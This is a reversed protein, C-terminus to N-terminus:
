RGTVLGRAYDAANAPDVRGQEVDAMYGLPRALVGFPLGTLVGITTLSDKIARKWSGDNVVANYVSVPTRAATEIVAVGPSSMVRDDYRKDNWANIAAMAGQGVIPVMATFLKAQGGFFVSLFNDLYGDDDDDDWLEGSMAQAIAEAIVATPLVIFFYLHLAQKWSKNAYADGAEFGLLNSQNIFYSTFMTFLRKIASGTEFRSLSEPNFDGQTLRVAADARRVSEEVSLNAEQAQNYAGRWIIVDMFNQTTQQLVYGYRASYERAKRYLSPDLMFPSAARVAEATQLPASIYTYFSNRLHEGKVKTLASAFGTVNQLTNSLNGSMIQLATNSRLFRAASDLFRFMESPHEVQQTAARDLWPVIATSIIETDVYKEIPDRFDKSMVVRAAERVRPEIHAFRLAWDIHQQVLRIDLQLPAAYSEIRAKTAGRGTTPWAFTAQKPAVAAKDARERAKFDLFPDVIAPMYGGRYTGWPTTFATAEVEPFYYGYMEKHAAQIAPKLSEMLDWLGQVFDFDVKTLTGADIANKIFTDWKTSDLTGDERLEGWPHGPRGGRLLKSKNSENGTHALAALLEARNTFQYGIEPAEIPDRTIRGDMTKALERLQTLVATRATRYRDAAEQIPRWLYKTFPAGPIHRDMAAFWHELRVLHARADLLGVNFKELESVAKKVGRQIEPRGLSQVGAALEDKIAQLDVRQGDILSKRTNRALVWIGDVIEKMQTFEVSTMDSVPKANETALQVVETMDAATKPDYEEVLKLYDLAREGQRGIGHAGLIARATNVLNLDYGKSLKEDSQQDRLKWGKLAKEYAAKLKTTEQVMALNILQRMKANYASTYDKSVMATEAAHAMRAGAGVYHKPNLDGVVLRGAIEAALKQLEAWTTPQGKAGLRRLIRLETLLVDAQKDSHVAAIAREALGGDNLMDGHREAMIRDVEANIAQRRPAAETIAKLMADGSDFGFAEAVLDPHLGGEAQVMFALKRVMDEGYQYAVAQRDLRQHPLDPASGDLLRGTRLWSAVQYEPRANIAEEVERTVQAKENRWWSKRERVLEA